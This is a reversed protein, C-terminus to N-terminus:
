IKIYIKTINVKNPTSDKKVKRKLTGAAIQKAYEVAVSELYAVTSVAGPGLPEVIQDVLGMSKAKKAPKAGGTM